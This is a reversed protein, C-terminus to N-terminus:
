RGPVHSAEATTAPIIMSGHEADDARRGWSLFITTIWLFYISSGGVWMMLGAIQQDVELSFGFIRPVNEYFHYIPVGAFTIFAGVLGGPLSILFLYLCQVPEELKPWAPLSGLVPWWALLSAILFSGHQLEHIPESKLALDYTGPFHWFIVIASSIVLAPVFRTIAYGVRNSWTSRTLPELLWGPTGILWLPAVIFMLMMHQTMHATLLYNDSWDDLPPGLAILFALSGLIFLVRQRATTQREVADPRRNNLTGTLLIYAATIGFAALVVTPDIRWNSHLWGTPFGQGSHLVPWIM